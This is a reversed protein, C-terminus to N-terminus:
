TDSDAEASVFRRYMMAYHGDQQILERHTGQEIIRGHAMVVIRDARTITSLRHAVIVTTRGRVLRELATQVQLETVTDVASTAEDLLLIRPDVLM